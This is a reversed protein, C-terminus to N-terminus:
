LRSVALRDVAEKAAPLSVHLLKRTLRIAGIQNGSAVLSLVRSRDLDSLQRFIEPCDATPLGLISVQKSALIRSRLWILFAILITLVALGAVTHNGHVLDALSKFVVFFLAIVWLMNLAKGWTM